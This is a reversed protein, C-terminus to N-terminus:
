MCPVSRQILETLHLREKGLCGQFQQSMFKEKEPLVSKMVFICRVVFAIAYFQTPGDAESIM